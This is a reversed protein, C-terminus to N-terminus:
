RGGRKSRSTRRSSNAAKSRAGYLRKARSRCAPRKSRPKKACARLAAALKQARTLPKPKVAPLPAPAPPPPLNEGAAQTSSGASSLAPAPSSAGQCADGSCGAETAPVPFGGNVRADYVDVQTDTDQPVLADVTTFFVDSGTPDTGVLRQLRAASPDRVTAILSVQGDHYQYINQTYTFSNCEKEEASKKEEFICALAQDDTAQPTLADPSEFFVYAGDSSMTLTSDATTVSDAIQYSSSAIRPALDQASSHQGVSVRQIGRSQANYEFVQSGMGTDGTGTLHRANVFALFQGDPTAAFPREVDKPTVGDKASVADALETAIVEATELEAEALEEELEPLEEKLEKLEEKLEKLAEQCEKHESGALGECKAKQIAVAEQKAAIETKQAAIGTKKEAIGAQETKAQEGEEVGTKLESEEGATLLNAVFSTREPAGGTATDYVYLNAAGEEAVEGNGNSTTTLVGKAVFYVHSGDASIRVVSMVNAALGNTPDHSVQVLRKIAGSELEAEYLDSGTGTGAEDSNLLPQETTFFVEAGDPSAGQFLGGKHGAAACAATCLGPPLVPESIAVTDTGDVRAYLEDVSPSAGCVHATFFVAAGDASIANYTDFPESGQSGGLTTGCQSILQAEANSNLPGANKVGVLKPESQEVGAYEYLSAKGTTTDGPWRGEGPHKEVLVHTLDESAGRYVGENGFEPLEGPPQLPGLHAFGGDPERRYLDAEGAPQSPATLKWLTSGLDPTADAQMGAAPFQALSPPEVPATAWGAEGRVLEYDAGLGGGEGGIGGTTNREAGAFLGLAPAILRSGDSSIMPTSAAIGEKFAPTVLEFARCDPLQASAVQARLHENPCEDTAARAATLPGVALAAAVGVLIAARKMFGRFM